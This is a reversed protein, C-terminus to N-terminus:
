ELITEPDSEPSVLWERVKKEEFNRIFRELSEEDDFWWKLEDRKYTLRPAYAYDMFRQEIGVISYINMIEKIVDEHIARCVDYPISCYTCTTIPSRYPYIDAFESTAYKEEIYLKNVKDVELKGEDLWYADWAYRFADTMKGDHDIITAIALYKVVLDLPLMTYNYRAYSRGHIYIPLTKARKYESEPIAINRLMKAEIVYDVDIIKKTPYYIAMELEFPITTDETLPDIPYTYAVAKASDFLTNELTIIPTRMDATSLGAVNFVPSLSMSFKKYKPKELDFGLYAVWYASEAPTVYRYLKDVTFERLRQIFDQFYEVLGQPIVTSM